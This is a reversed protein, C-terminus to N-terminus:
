QVLSLNLTNQLYGKMKQYIWPIRLFVWSIKCFSLFNQWFSLFIKSFSLSEGIRLQLDNSFFTWYFLGCSVNWWKRVFRSSELQERALKENAKPHTDLVDTRISRKATPQPVKAATRPITGTIPPPYGSQHQQGPWTVLVIKNKNKKIKVFSPRVGICYKSELVSPTWSRLTISSVM